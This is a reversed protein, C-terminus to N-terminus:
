FSPLNFPFLGFISPFAFDPPALRDTKDGKAFSQRKRLSTRLSLARLPHNPRKM